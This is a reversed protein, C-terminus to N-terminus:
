PLPGLHWVAVILIAFGIIVTSTAGVVPAVERYITARLVIVHCGADLVM